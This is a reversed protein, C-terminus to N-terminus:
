RTSNFAADTFTYLHARMEVTGHNALELLRRKTFELPVPPHVLPLSYPIPQAEILSIRGELGRLLCGAHHIARVTANHSTVIVAIELKGDAGPDPAKDAPLGQGSRLTEAGLYRITEPPLM